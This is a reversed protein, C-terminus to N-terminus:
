TLQVRYPYAFYVYGGRTHPDPRINKYPPILFFRIRSKVQQTSFFLLAIVTRGM